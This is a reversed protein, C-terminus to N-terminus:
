PLGQEIARLYFPIAERERGLTDHVWATQYHIEANEPYAAVLELLIARAEEARGASRLEIAKQLRDQM